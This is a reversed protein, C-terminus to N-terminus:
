VALTTSPFAKRRAEVTVTEAETAPIMIDDTETVTETETVSAITTPGTGEATVIPADTAKTPPMAKMAARIAEAQVVTDATTTDSMMEEAEQLHEIPIQTDIKQVETAAGNLNTTPIMEAAVIQNEIPKRVVHHLQSSTMTTMEEQGPLNARICTEIWQTPIETRSLNVTAELGVMPAQMVVMIAAPGQTKITMKM